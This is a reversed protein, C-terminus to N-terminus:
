IQSEWGERRAKAVLRAPLEEYGASIREHLPLSDMYSKEKESHYNDLRKSRREETESREQKLREERATQRIVWQDLKKWYYETFESTM